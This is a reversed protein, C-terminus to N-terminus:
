RNEHELYALIQQDFYDALEPSHGQLWEQFELSNDYLREKLAHPALPAAAQQFSGIDIEIAEEEVFAFNRHIVPDLDIINLQHQAMLLTLLADISRKAGSLDGQTLLRELRVQALEGRKQLAFQTTDLDIAHAIGLRDILTAQIQLHSTPNLHLYLLGCEQQFRQFAISASSLAQSLKKIPRKNEKATNFLRGKHHKFLKLVSKGDASLFSYSQVGSGFYTFPQQACSYLLEQQNKNPDANWEEKYIPTSLVEALRFKDTQRDCFLKAATFLLLFLAGKLLKTRLM